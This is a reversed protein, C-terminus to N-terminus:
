GRAVGARAAEFSDPRYLAALAREHDPNPTLQGAEVMRGYIWRGQDLSHRHTTGGFRLYLPALRDPGSPGLALRGELSRMILQAPVGLHREAALLSALETRNEPAACWAGAETLAQLLAAATAAPIRGEPWALVKEPADAVIECGLAVIRGRRAQVAVSNWPSGVCFGDVAGSELAEVMFPPPVVTIRLDADPDIGGMRLFSRLLYTHTSYPFVTAFTLPEEGALRRRRVLRELAEAVRMVGANDEIELASWLVSSVTVANGNLNLAFPAVLPSMPGPPLGLRTAIALPALLHAADVHGLVLKDRLTAWSAERQLRITLGYQAAFGLEAAAILVAADTLPIYGM